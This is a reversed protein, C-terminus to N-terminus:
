GLAPTVRNLPKREWMERATLARAAGSWKPYVFNFDADSLRWSIVWRSKLPLETETRLVVAGVSLMWKTAPLGIRVGHAARLERMFKSNPLPNPAALNIRGDLDEREILFEIARCFDEVHIWSVYQKGTGMRGGLRLKVLTQFVSFPGGHGRGMVM